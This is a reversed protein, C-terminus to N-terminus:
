PLLRPEGRGTGVPLPPPTEDYPRFARETVAPSTEAMWAAGRGASRFNDPLKVVDGFASANPRTVPVLGTM